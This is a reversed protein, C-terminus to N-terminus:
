FWFAEAFLLEVKSREGVLLVGCVINQANKRSTMVCIRHKGLQSVSVSSWLVVDHLTRLVGFL